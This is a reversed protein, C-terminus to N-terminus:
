IKPKSLKYNNIRLEFYRRFLSILSISFWIMSGNMNSFFSGSSRAPWLISTLVAFTAIFCSLIIKDESSIKINNLIIIQKLSKIMIISFFIIITIFGLIGTEVIIEFYLNHPHSSCRKYYALSRINEYKSNGCSNTFGKIGSGLLPKDKLMEISTLYHAGWQNNLFNINNKKKHDDDSIKNLDITVFDKALFYKGLIKYREQIYQNSSLIYIFIIFFLSGITIFFLKLRKTLIIFILSSLLAMLFSIREGSLLIGIFFILNLTSLFTYLFIKNSNYKEFIFYNLFILGVFGIKILYAGPIAEDTGFPGTLRNANELTAKYGFIDIKQPHFYQYLTDFLVFILCIFIIIFINKLNYFFYKNIKADLTIFYLILFKLYLLSKFFTKFNNQNQFDNNIITSFILIIFFFLLFYNETSTEIKLDKLKIIFILACILLVLSIIAQGIIISIPLLLIPILSIDLNNKKVPM